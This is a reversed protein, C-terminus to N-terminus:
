KIGMHIAVSGLALQKCGANSFGTKRLINVLDKGPYFKSISDGLYEYGNKEGTLFHGTARAIKPAIFFFVKRIFPNVPISTELLVLRGNKKLVRYFEMLTKKLKEPEQNLNRVAFSVTILDIEGDDFPLNEARGKIFNVTSNKKIAQDLMAETFDIGYVQTSGPSIKDLLIAMEGTGTCVDVWKDGGGKAALSAAIKRWKKDQGLSILHNVLEYRKAINAFVQKLNIYNM